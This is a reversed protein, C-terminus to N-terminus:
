STRKNKIEPKNVNLLKQNGLRAFSVQSFDVVPLFRKLLKTKNQVKKTRERTNFDTLYINTSLRLLNDPIKSVTNWFNVHEM